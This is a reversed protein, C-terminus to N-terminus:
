KVCSKIGLSRFSKFQRTEEEGSKRGSAGRGGRGGSVVEKRRGSASGKKTIERM